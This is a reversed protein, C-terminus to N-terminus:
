VGRRQDEFAIKCLVSAAAVVQFNGSDEDQDEDQVTWDQGGGDSEERVRQGALDAIIWKWLSLSLFALFVAVWWELPTSLAGYGQKYAGMVRIAEELPLYTTQLRVGEINGRPPFNAHGFKCSGCALSGM